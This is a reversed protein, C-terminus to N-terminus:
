APKRRRARVKRKETGARGPGGGGPDGLGDPGDPGPRAERERAAEWPDHLWTERSGVAKVLTVRRERATSEGTFAPRPYEPGDDVSASFRFAPAQGGM